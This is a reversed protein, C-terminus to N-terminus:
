YLTGDYYQLLLGVVESYSLKGSTVGNAQLTSDTISDSIKDVVDTSIVADEEVQEWTEPTLFVRDTLVLDNPYLLEYEGGADLAEQVDAALYNIVGLCASYQLFADSSEICAVYALFNAEDELIFGRVHSLEHCMVEPYNSTYMLGNVNAELSFPFYVGATYSQSMLESARITKVHPYWGDLKPYRRGLKKMAKICADETKEMDFVLLDHEDRELTESLANAQRVVHNYVAVLEEGTYERAEVDPNPDLPTCHYLIFCNLTMVIAVDLVAALFFRYFSRIGFYVGPAKRKRKVLVMPIWLILAVGVLICAIVLLGEGVSFPFLSTIRGYLNLWIPFVYRSYWDCWAPSCWALINLVLLVAVLIGVCYWYDRTDRKRYRRAPSAKAPTRSGTSANRSGSGRRSGTGSNRSGNGTRGGSGSRSGSGSGQRSRNNSGGAM